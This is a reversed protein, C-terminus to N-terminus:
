LRLLMGRKEFVSTLFENVERPTTYQGLQSAADRRHKDTIADISGALVAALVERLDENSWSPLARGPTKANDRGRRAIRLMDPESPRVVGYFDYRAEYPAFLSRMYSRWRHQLIRMLVPGPPGWTGAVESVTSHRSAFRLPLGSSSKDIVSSIGEDGEYVRLDGRTYLLCSYDVWYINSGELGHVRQEGRVRVHELLASKPVVERRLYLAFKKLLIQDAEVTETIARTPTTVMIAELVGPLLLSTGTLTDLPTVLLTTIYHEYDSMSVPCMSGSGDGVQGTIVPSSAFYVGNRDHYVYSQRGYRDRVQEKTVSMTEVVRQALAHSEVVADIDGIPIYVHRKAAKGIEIKLRLLKELRYLANMSSSDLTEGDVPPIDCVYNCPGYLCAPSDDVVDDLDNYNVTHMMRCDISSDRLMREVVKIRRDKRASELYTDVDKGQYQTGSVYSAM